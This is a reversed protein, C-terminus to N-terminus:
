GFRRQAVIRRENPIAAPGSAPAGKVNRERLQRFLHAAQAQGAAM